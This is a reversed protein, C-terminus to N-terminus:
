RAVIPIWTGAEYHGPLDDFVLYFGRRLTLTESATQGPRVLLAAGVAGGASPRGGWRATRVVALEHADRGLNRATLRVAGARVAGDSPVVNWEAVDLRLVAPAAQESGQAAPALSACGYAAAALGLTILLRRM